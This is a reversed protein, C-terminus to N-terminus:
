DGARHPAPLQADNGQKRHSRFLMEKTKANNLQLNNAAAWAKIHALEVPSTQTNPAPIVLFTDDAYNNSYRTEM